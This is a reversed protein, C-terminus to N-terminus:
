DDVPHARRRLAHEDVRSVAARQQFRRQEIGALSEEVHVAAVAVQTWPLGPGALAAVVYGGSALATISLAAAKRLFFMAYIPPLALLPACAYAAGAHSEVAWLLLGTGLATLLPFSWDPMADYAALLLLSAIIVSM